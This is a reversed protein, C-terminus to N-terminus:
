SQDEESEPPPPPPSEDEPEPEPDPEPDAQVQVSVPEDGWEVPPWGEDKRIENITRIGATAAVSHATMREGYNGRQLKDVNLVVFVESTTPDGESRIMWSLAEELREIWPRLSHQVFAVGQESTTDGFQPGEQGLLHLPVGFFRAIDPVSFQRTELFQAEDPSISVTSFKAGETLVALRQANGVGRHKEEWTSKAVKAAMESMEGPFELVGSPAAGNGFFTAGYETAARGLGISEKAMAIPSVGRIRGPLTMGRIMKVDMSSFKRPQGDAPTFEFVLEGRVLEVSVKSPDLVTLQEITGNGDRQTAIFASGDLTLSVMIEGFVDIKGWPGVRFDLFAPRPRAPRPVGDIRRYSDLPLTAINESLINVCRYVTSVQLSSEQTVSVGAKSNSGGGFLDLGKGYIDSFSLTSDVGREESKGLLRQVFAM